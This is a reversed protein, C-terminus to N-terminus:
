KNKQRLELLTEQAEEFEFGSVQRGLQEMLAPDLGSGPLSSLEAVKEEADTNMEEILSEIIDLFGNIQELDVPESAADESAEQVSVHLVTLGELVPTMSTELEIVLDDYKESEGDKIALELDESKKRLAGAGFTAAIGKITHAMRQATGYDGTALATRIAAIDNGHNTFFDLLLKKFLKKNGGVRQLGAAIDIGTLTLPLENGDAPLKEAVPIDALEREGPEIWKLLTSFLEQPNIPKVIHDDMGAARAEEKDAVMANATMALVPIDNFIEQKRIERTATYGDMVPMQVDMLICDYTNAVLKDLAEQGDNAIDVIFGAQELLESAVQQNIHNDEVLLLHAGQIPGLTEMNFGRSQRSGGATCDIEHGFTDMIVDLLFSPNVPKQLKNDVLEIGPVHAYEAQGYATILIVKPIKELQRDQKILKTTELGNMGGPMMYDMFVLDYPQDAVKIANVADEGSSVCDVEMGFRSLYADIIDRAHLNDDVALVRMGSLKASAEKLCCKQHESVGLVVEFKFTTGQGPESEVWIRGDMMEVFQKSIALGLGTGGYKRSTSSDAQSFSQFLKGMQEETMGIGTDQVSFRLRAKNEEKEVLAISVLIEGEHTFKVANNCLNVLVQGLRL